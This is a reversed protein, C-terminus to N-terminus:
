RPKRATRSIGRPPCASAQFRIRGAGDSKIASSSNGFRDECMRWGLGMVNYGSCKPMVNTEDVGFMNGNLPFFDYKIDTPCGLPKAEFMVNQNKDTMECEEDTLARTWCRVNAFQGSTLYGSSPFDTQGLKFSNAMSENNNCNFFVGETQAMVKILKTDKEGIYISLPGAANAGAAHSVVITYWTNAKAAKWNVTRSCGYMDYHLTNEADLYFHRASSGLQFLRNICDLNGVKFSIAFSFASADRQPLNTGSFSIAKSGDLVTSLPLSTQRTENGEINTQEKIWFLLGRYLDVDSAVVMQWMLIVSLFMVAKKM